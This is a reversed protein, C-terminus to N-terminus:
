KKGRLGLLAIGTLIAGGIFLPLFGRKKEGINSEPCAAAGCFPCYQEFNQYTPSRMIRLAAGCSPCAVDEWVAVEEQIGYWYRMNPGSYYTAWFMLEQEATARAILGQVYSTYEANWNHIKWDHEGYWMWWTPKPSLDEPVLEGRNRAKQYWDLIMAESAYRVNEAATTVNLGQGM